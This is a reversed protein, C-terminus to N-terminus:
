NKGFFEVLVNYTLDISFKNCEMIAEKIADNYNDTSININQHENMKNDIIFQLKEAIEEESM